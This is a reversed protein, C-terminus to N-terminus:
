VSHTSDIAPRPLSLPPPSPATGGWLKARAARRALPRAPRVLPQAACATRSVDQAGGMSFLDAQFCVLCPLRGSDSITNIDSDGFGALYVSLERCPRPGITFYIYVKVSKKWSQISTHALTHRLRPM